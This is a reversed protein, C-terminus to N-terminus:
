LLFDFYSIYKELIFSMFHGQNVKLRIFRFKKSVTGVAGLPNKPLEFVHGSHPIDVLHPMDVLHPFAM